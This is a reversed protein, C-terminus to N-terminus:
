EDKNGGRHYAPKDKWKVSGDKYHYRQKGAPVDNPTYSSDIDESSEDDVVYDDDVLNDYLDEPEDPTYGGYDYDSSNDSQGNESGSSSSKTSEAVAAATITAAAIGVGKLIKTATPHKVPFEVIAKGISKLGDKM